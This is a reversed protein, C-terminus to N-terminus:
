KYVDNIIYVPRKKVETFVRAIYEGMIGFSIMQLSVASLMVVMLSAYGPADIGFFIAQFFVFGGYTFSALGVMVGFYFWVKLPLGSFSILGDTALLFLKRYNWSTEGVAREPRSYKVTKKTFGVWSLIGKMFRTTEPMNRVALVVRRDMLRYDGVNPPIDAASVSNYIRYFYNSTTRKLWGDSDRDSRQALVVDYGERWHIIFDSILAPPDQLDVDMPIVADGDAYEIGATLAAEKGFNRSLDIVEIDTRKEMLSCLAELTTDSSGDNVFIYNFATDKIHQIVGDVADLFVSISKEENFVPVIISIKAQAPRLRRHKEIRIADTM